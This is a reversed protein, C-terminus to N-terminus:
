ESRVWARRSLVWAVWLGGAVLSKAVGGVLFPAVGAAFAEGGGLLLSLRAWGCALIVLHAGLAAVAVRAFASAAAREAGPAMWGVVAAGAVFGALYGGTPGTVASFGSAGDAFVPLGLAGVVVYLLLAFAGRGAGLAAGALVVALTQLSQPVPSGPVPVDFRAAVAVALVAVVIAGLARPADTRPAAPSTM